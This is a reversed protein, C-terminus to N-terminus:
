IQYSNFYLDICSIYLFTINQHRFKVKIQKHQSFHIILTNKGGATTGM